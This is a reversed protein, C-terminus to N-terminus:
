NKTDALKLYFAGIALNLLNSTKSKSWKEASSIWIQTIEKDTLKANKYKQKIYELFIKADALIYNGAHQAYAIKVSNIKPMLQQDHYTKMEEMKANLTDNDILKQMKNKASDSLKAMNYYSEIIESYLSAKVVETAHASAWEKVSKDFDDNMLPHIFINNIINSKDANSESLSKIVNVSSWMALEGALKNIPHKANDKALLTHTPNDGRMMLQDNLTNFLTLQSRKVMNFAVIVVYEKLMRKYANIAERIDKFLLADIEDNVWQVFSVVVNPVIKKVVDGIKYTFEKGRLWCDRLFLFTMYKDEYYKPNKDKRISDYYRCCMLIYLDKPYVYNPKMEVKPTEEFDMAEIKTNVMDMLSYFMDEFGFTGSTIPTYFAKIGVHEEPKDYRAGMKASAQYKNPYKVYLVNNCMAANFVKEPDNANGKGWKMEKASYNQCNDAATFTKVKDTWVKVLHTEAYNSHGYFDQIIHLLAGLKVQNTRSTLNDISALLEQTYQSVTPMSGQASTGKLHKKMGTVRDVELTKDDLPQAGAKKLRDSVKYPYTGKDESYPNDCHEYYCSLKVLDNFGPIISLSPNSKNDVISTLTDLPSTGKTREISHGGVAGTHFKSVALVRVVNTLLEHLKEPEPVFGDYLEAFWENGEQKNMVFLPDFVMPALLQSYDRLWNGRFMYEISEMNRLPDVGSREIAQRQINEHGFGGERSLDHIKFGEYDGVHDDTGEQRGETYEELANHLNCIDWALDFSGDPTEAEAFHINSQDKADEHYTNYFSQYAYRAGEDGDADKQANDDYKYRLLWDIHHGFEEVLAAMLKHRCENDEIAQEVIARSVYIKNTKTNYAASLGYITNECVEIEPNLLSNDVCADYLKSIASKPIDEGFIDTIRFRFVFEGDAQAISTLHRLAFDSNLKVQECRQPDEAHRRLIQQKLEKEKKPEAFPELKSEVRASYVIGTYNAFSPSSIKVATNPLVAGGMATKATSFVVPKGNLLVTPMGEILTDSGYPHTAMDGVVAIPKGDITATTSACQVISGAGTSAGLTVLFKSM